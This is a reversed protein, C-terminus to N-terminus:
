GLPCTLAALTQFCRDSLWTHIHPLGSLPDQLLSCVTERTFLGLHLAENHYQTLRFAELSPTTTGAILPIVLLNDRISGSQRTTTSCMYEGIARLMNLLIEGDLALQIEDLMLFVVKLNRNGAQKHLAVSLVQMVFDLKFIRTDNTEPLDKTSTNALARAAVRKGITFEGALDSEVKFNVADGNSLDVYVACGHQVGELLETAEEQNRCADPQAYQAVHDPRGFIQLGEMITPVKSLYEGLEYMVWSRAVALLTTKGVGPGGLALGFSHDRKLPSERNRYNNLVVSLLQRKADERQQVTWETKRKPQAPRIESPTSGLYNVLDQASVVRATRVGQGAAKIWVIIRMRSTASDFGWELLVAENV